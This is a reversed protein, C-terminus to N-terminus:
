AEGVSLELRRLAGPPDGAHFGNNQDENIETVLAGPLM